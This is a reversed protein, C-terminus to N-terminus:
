QAPAWLECWGAPSIPGAILKCRSKPDAGTTPKFIFYVCQACVKGARPVDQYGAQDKAIPAGAPLVPQLGALPLIALLSRRTTM